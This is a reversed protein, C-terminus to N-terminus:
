TVPVELGGQRLSTTVAELVRVVDVASNSSFRDTIGSTLSELFARNQAVLPETPTIQPLLVDGDWTQVKLFEGFSTPTPKVAAGKNYIAVPSAIDLDDWTVMKQSGVITARRVKLPDLWSVQLGVLKNGPYQLQIFAVDEISDQLWAMGQATVFSPVSDLLWNFISIDHAALDYAVNVDSRIPGLNTRMASGYRVEGLEGSNLLQKIRVIGPNFLFIHGVVLVRNAKHAMETLERARAADLCLPKECLVHKGVALSAEVLQSHTHTPTAIVVAEIAPDNLIEDVSRVTSLDDNRSVLSDIAKADTDFVTVRCGLERLFVRVHNPGWHGCGIVAISNQTM